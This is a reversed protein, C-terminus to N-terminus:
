RESRIKESQTNTIRLPGLRSPPTYSRPSGPSTKLTAPPTEWESDTIATWKDISDLQYQIGTTIRTSPGRKLWRRRTSIALPAIFDETSSPDTALDQSGLLTHSRKSASDKPGFFSGFPNAKLFSQERKLTEPSLDGDFEEVFYPSPRKLAEWFHTCHEQRSFWSHRNLLFCAM